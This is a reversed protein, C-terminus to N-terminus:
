RRTKFIESTTPKWPILMGRQTANYFQVSSMCKGISARAATQLPLRCTRAIEYIGHISHEHQWIFCNSQDIHIRGLLNVPTSKFHIQGYSFYSNGKCKQSPIVINPERGFVLKDSIGNKSARYALYPFDWTDGGDTIIFDPDVDKILRVCELIMEKESSSNITTDNVQIKDIVDTFKPIAQESKAITKLKIKTFPPLDYDTETIDSLESWTDGGDKIQYQGLPYLKNEYLYIQEAPVDVNYLRYVGFKDLREINKALKVLDGSKKVSIQLVWSSKVDSAKEFKKIRKFQKVFPKIVPNTELRKLKSKSNSAVYLSPTWQKGIRHIKHKSKIWLIIKDDLVYADFLWGEIM